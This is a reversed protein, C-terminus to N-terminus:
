WEAFIKEVMIEFVNMGYALFKLVKCFSYNKIDREVIFILIYISLVWEASM